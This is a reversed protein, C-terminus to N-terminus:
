GIRLAHFAGEKQLSSPAHLRMCKISQCASLACSASGIADLLILTPAPMDSRASCRKLVCLRALEDPDIAVNHPKPELILARLHSLDGVEGVEAPLLSRRPLVPHLVTAPPGVALVDGAELLAARHLQPLRAVLIRCTRAECELLVRDERATAQLRAPVPLKPSKRFSFVLVEHREILLTLSNLEARGRAPAVPTLMCGEPCPRQGSWSSFYFESRCRSAQAAARIAPLMDALPRVAAVDLAESPARERLHLAQAIAELPASPECERVLYGEAISAQFGAAPSLVLPVVLAVRVEMDSNQECPRFILESDFTLVDAAPTADSAALKGKPALCVYPDKFRM